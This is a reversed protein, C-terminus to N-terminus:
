ETDAAYESFFEGSYLCEPCHILEGDKDEHYVIAMAHCHEGFRDSRWAPCCVIKEGSFFEYVPAKILWRSWRENQSLNEFQTQNIKADETHRYGHTPM